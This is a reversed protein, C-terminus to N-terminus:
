FLLMLIVVASIIFSLIALYFFLSAFTGTTNSLNKFGFIAALFSIILFVIALHLFM